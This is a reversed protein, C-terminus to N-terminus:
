LKRITTTTIQTQTLIQKTTVTKTQHVVEAPPLLSSKSSSPSSSLMKVPSAPFHHHTQQHQDLFGFFNFNLMTCIRRECRLLRKINEQQNFLPNDFIPDPHVRHIKCALLLAAWQFLLKREQQKESTVCIRYLIEAALELVVANSGFCELLPPLLLDTYQVNQPLILMIATNQKQEHEEEQHQQQQATNNNVMIDQWEELAESAKLRERPDFALCREIVLCIKRFLTNGWFTIMERWIAPRYKQLVQKMTQDQTTKEDEKEELAARYSKGKVYTEIWSREPFGRWAFSRYLLKPPFREYRGNAFPRLDPVLENATIGMFLQILIMGACWMDPAGWTALKEEETRAIWACRVEPAHYVITGMRDVNRVTSDWLVATGFDSLKANWKHKSASSRFLLFNDPKVDNHSIRSQHLANLGAFMDRALSLLQGRERHPWASVSSKFNYLLAPKSFKWLHRLYRGMTGTSLPMIVHLHEQPQSKSSSHNNSSNSSAGKAFFIEYAPVINPHNLIRLLATEILQDARVGIKERPKPDEDDENEDNQKNIEHRMRKMAFENQLKTVKFVQGFTGAGLTEGIVYGAVTAM